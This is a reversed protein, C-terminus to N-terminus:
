LTSVVWYEQSADVVLGRAIMAKHMISAEGQYTLTVQARTTGVSRIALRELGPLTNLVELIQRWHRGYRYEVRLVLVRGQDDAGQKASASLTDMSERLNLAVDRAARVLLMDLTEGTMQSTYQQVEEEEKSAGAKRVVVEVIPKGEVMRSRAFAIVVDRTGYRQAMEMLARKNGTFLVQDSLIATDQPDGFPMVLRGQGIELAVNNLIARWFNTRQFLLLGNEETDYLPIILVGEGQPEQHTEYVGHQHGILRGLKIKNFRFTVDAEYFQGRRTEDFITFSELYSTIDSGRIKRYIDRAQTPAKQVLAQYFSKKEGENLALRKAEDAHEHEARIKMVIDVTQVMKGRPSVADAPAASVLLPMAAIMVCFFLLLTRLLRM